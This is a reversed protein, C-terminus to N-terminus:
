NILGHTNFSFSSKDTVIIHDLFKIGLVQAAEKISKTVKHDDASAETQGSPHNHAIIVAIAGTLVARQFVERPHVQTSNALGTSLVSYSVVQHAADLYLAVFHERSNDPLIKRIFEVSNEPGSIKTLAKKTKYKVIVERVQTHEM